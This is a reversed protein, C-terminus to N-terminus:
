IKGCLRCGSRRGQALLSRTHTHTGQRYTGHTTRSVARIVNDKTESKAGRIKDNLGGFIHFYSSATDPSYPPHLTV